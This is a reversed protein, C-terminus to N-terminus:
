ALRAAGRLVRRSAHKRQALAGWRPRQDREGEPVFAPTEGPTPSFVVGPMSAPRQSSRRRCRRSALPACRWARSPGANHDAVGAARRQRSQPLRRTHKSSAQGRRGALARPERERPRAAVRTLASRAGPGSSSSRQDRRKRLRGLVRCSRPKRANSPERVRTVPGDPSSCAAFRDARWLLSGHRSM